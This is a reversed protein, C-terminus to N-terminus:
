PAGRDGDRVGSELRQLHREVLARVRLRRALLSHPWRTTWTEAFCSSCVYEAIVWEDQQDTSVRIYAVASSRCVTRAKM